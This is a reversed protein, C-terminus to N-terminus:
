SAKKTIGMKKAQERLCVVFAYGRKGKCAKAVKATQGVYGKLPEPVKGRGFALSGIIVKGPAFPTSFVRTAPSSAMQLLEDASVRIKM